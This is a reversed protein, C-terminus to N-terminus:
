WTWALELRWQSLSEPDLALLRERSLGDPPPSLAAMREYVRLREGPDVRSLLHWLTLTDRPRSEALVIDVLTRAPEPARAGSRRFDFAQLAEVLAESADDFYPTGPGVGPRTRCTAGAPVLSERGEFEFAVWGTQVRLVGVGSTDCRLTYECGLDVATGAPTEVFFLRPPAFIRAAIEGSRLALRHENARATVVALSTGPEVDVSGIAGVQIRARSSGDTVIAQGGRILATGAVREPGIAPSGALRVVEWQEGHAAHGYWLVALATIVLLAAAAAFRWRGTAAGPRAPPALATGAPGQPAAPWELAAPRELAAEIGAWVSEPAQALPLLEALAMGARVQDLEGRCRACAAVHTTVGRSAASDLEGDLYAALHRSAHRDLM